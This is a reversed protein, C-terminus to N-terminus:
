RQHTVFGWTPLPRSWRTLATVTIAEHPRLRARLFCVLGRVQFHRQCWGRQRIVFVARERLEQASM